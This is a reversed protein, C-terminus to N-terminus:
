KLNLRNKVDELSFERGEELDVMGKLIDKMFAREESEAEFDSLSQVVAAFKAKM